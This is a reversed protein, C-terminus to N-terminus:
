IMMRVFRSNIFLPDDRRRDLLIKKCSALLKFLAHQTCHMKQNFTQEYMARKYVKSVLPLISVPIYNKKNFPDDTKHIRNVNACKLSM